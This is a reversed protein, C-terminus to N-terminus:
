YFSNGKKKTTGNNATAQVITKNNHPNTIFVSISLYNTCILYSSPKPKPRVICDMPQNNSLRDPSKRSRRSPQRPTARPTNSINNDQRMFEQFKLQDQLCRKSYYNLSAEQQDRFNLISPGRVPFSTVLTSVTDNNYRKYSKSVFFQNLHGEGKTIHLGHVKWATVSLPHIFTYM